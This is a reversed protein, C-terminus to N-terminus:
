PTRPPAVSPAQAVAWDAIRAAARRAVEELSRAAVGAARDAVPAREDIESSALLVRTRANLLKVSAQLRAELGGDEVIEFATLDWRIEVDARGEGTRVAGTALGRRDITHVLLTQLLDVNRGEWAAGEIYALAGGRRWAIDSGSLARTADPAAVAIVIDRPAQAVPAAPAPAAELPYILPPPPPKPLLRICGALPALVLAILVL